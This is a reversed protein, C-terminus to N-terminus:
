YESDNLDDDYLRSGPDGIEDLVDVGPDDSPLAESGNKNNKVILFLIIGAVLILFLIGAAVAIIILLTNGDSPEDDDEVPQDDDGSPDFNAPIVISTHDSKEGEGYENSASVVYFYTVNGEVDSDTYNTAETNDLPNWDAQDGSRRYVNYGTVESDGPDM